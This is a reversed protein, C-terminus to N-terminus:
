EEPKTLADIQELLKEVRERVEERERRLAVLEHEKNEWERSREKSASKVRELEHELAKRDAQVRKVVEVARAIKEEFQQFTDVPERMMTQSM